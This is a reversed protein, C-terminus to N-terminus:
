LSIIGDVSDNSFHKKINIIDDLIYPLGPFLRLSNIMMQESFDFCVADHGKDRLYKTVKGTAGGLDIIKSNQELNSEFKDILDKDELEIGFEECYQNAITDYDKKVNDRKEISNM